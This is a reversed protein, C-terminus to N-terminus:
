PLDYTRTRGVTNGQKHTVFVGDVLRVKKGM